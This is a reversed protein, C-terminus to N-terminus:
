GLAQPVDQAVALVERVADQFEPRTGESWKEKGSIGFGPVCDVM